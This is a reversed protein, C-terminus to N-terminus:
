KCLYSNLGIISQFIQATEPDPHPTNVSIYWCLFTAVTLVVITIIFILSWKKSVKILIISTVLSVFTSIGGVVFWIIGVLVLSLAKALQSAAGFHSSIFIVLATIHVAAALGVIISCIVFYVKQSKSM